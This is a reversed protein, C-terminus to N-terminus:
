NTTQRERPECLDLRGGHLPPPYVVKQDISSVFTEPTLIASTRSLGPGLHFVQGGQPDIVDVDPKTDSLVM